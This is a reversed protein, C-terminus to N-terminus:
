EAKPTETPPPDAAQQQQPAAETKPVPVPPVAPKPTKQPANSPAQAATPIKGEFMRRLIGPALVSLPNISIQPEDANGSISYSMGFVGEGQKSTLVDGILPINGLMSNIDYLPVLTGKLAIDNKPRDIYGDGSIGIAPGTARADHISIVGNRSSFPLELTDVAIGQGQLLNSLGGLSGATFVRALFPQDLIRFDKLVGKGQFDPADPVPPQDAKGTLTADFTLKGGRMSDFGFLGRTLTGMDDTALTFHRGADSPTISGTLSGNKPLTAALTMSSPRDAIGSIDLAFPALAVGDRMVLRDLKASIHFPESFNQEEGSAGRGALRSGDLSRGRVVVDLGKDGRTLNLSFDNHAGIRVVPAQLQVLREEADYKANVTVSTGQGTVHITQSAIASKPGFLMNVRATMPFGAPKNVGILDVTLTAPALDVTLNGQTLEGRHGTLTGSIGLPGKIQDQMELGLAQRAVEDLSGKLALRTTVPKATKFDETWDLHLRSASGGLGATGTAHLKNNDIDFDVTGDTLATHPGLAIAFGSAAVKIVIKVQDVDLEKLLPVAFSLETATSGKADAAKVGFRTPYGLPPLDVLALVDSMAGEIHGTINGIEEEASLQPIFFQAKSVALPGIRASAVDAKFSDGTVVGTGQVETLHTLGKIYNIEAGSVAFKVTLAEEPLSPGDLLGPTFHMEFSTPGVLGAPMNRDVWDRANAAAGVPWYAVLDRVNMPAMTGSVEVSPSADKSATIRGSVLMSVPRGSVSLRDIVFDREARNWSGRLEALQFQVPHAFVGPWALSLKSLRLDTRLGGLEGPAGEVLDLSGRLQAKIKDSEIEAKELLLRQKAGDYRGVARLSDVRVHGDELDPITFGGKAALGFNASVIRWGEAAFSGTVDLKLATDKVASFSKSNEALSRVDFGTISVEGTIRGKAPPVVLDASIHAPHGSIEVAADILVALNAGLKALRFESRPAVVFLGTTEDKFALRAGRVAFSELSTTSDGSEKLADAIRQLIDSGRKEAEVGLRLKGEETRVLTIQVGVLAIRKVVIKGELFPAAALDIDAKPAQAIIRGDVDFVRTGLIVLNVKGEDRAWEIAAQDYKVTIGPLAQNVADSLATGFPGLSVPGILLRVGAGVVFFVAAAAIGGAVLAARSIHHAKVYRRVLRIPNWRSFRTM